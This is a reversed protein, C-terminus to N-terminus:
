ECCSQQCNTSEKNATQMSLLVSPRIDVVGRWKGDVKERYYDGIPLVTKHLKGENRATVLEEYNM